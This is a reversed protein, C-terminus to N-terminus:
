AKRAKPVLENLYVEYENGSLMNRIHHTSTIFVRNDPTTIRFGKKSVTLSAWIQSTEDFESTYKPKTQLQEKNNQNM